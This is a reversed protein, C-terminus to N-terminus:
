ARRVVVPQQTNRASQLTARHCVSMGYIGPLDVDM